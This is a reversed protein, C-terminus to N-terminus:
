FFGLFEENCIKFISNIRNIIFYFCVIIYFIKLDCCCKRKFLNFSKLIYEEYLYDVVYLM